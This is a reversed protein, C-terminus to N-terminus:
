SMLDAMTRIQALILTYFQASLFGQQACPLDPSIGMRALLFNRTTHIEISIVDPQLV